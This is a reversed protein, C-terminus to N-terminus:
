TARVAREDGHVDGDLQRERTHVARRYELELRRRRGMRDNGRRDVGRQAVPARFPREGGDLDADLHGDDPRLTWRHQSAVRRLGGLRDDGRGDVGRQAVSARFPCERGDLDGGVHGHGPQLAGRHEGVVHRPRGLRDDRDGDLHRQSFPACEPRERGHLDADVHRDAPFLARRQEPLLRAGGGGWVIMETGTWVARHLSRAEPVNAGTSTPTWTDTSPSYRGGTNCVANGVTGGWVIMESGTWVASHYMRPDPVEVKTPTWADNACTSHPVDPLVYSGSRGDVETPYSVRQVSWWSDFSEKPWLVTATTIEGAAASLVATVSFAEPTEELDSMVGIPLSGPAAGFREEHRALYEKWEAATLDRTSPDISEIPPDTGGDRLRARVEHYEGGMSRMCSASRCAVLAAEAGRKARDHLRPDYAYWGRILREALAQRALAEAIVYPDNGLADYLERLMEGDRTHAAMRDMEAQLQEATLPRRWWAAIANSKRLSDAVKARLAVEPMVESLLPKPGPNEPPWVRHNWYVQEIARQAEVRDEFTLTRLGAFPSPAIAPPPSVSNAQVGFCLVTLLVPLVRAPAASSWFPGNAM